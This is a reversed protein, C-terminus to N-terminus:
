LVTSFSTRLVEIKKYNKKMNENAKEVIKQIYSKEVLIDKDFIPLEFSLHYIIEVM